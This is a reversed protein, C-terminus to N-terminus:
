NTVAYVAEAVGCDLYRAVVQDVFGRWFGYKKEFREEWLSKVDEYYAELLRHLATVRPNRTRYLCARATPFIRVSGYPRNTPSRWAMTLTAASEAQFRWTM